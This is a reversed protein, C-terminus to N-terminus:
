KKVDKTLFREIGQIEKLIEGNSLLNLKQILQRRTNNDTVFKSRTANIVKWIEQRIEDYILVGIGHEKLLEFNTITRYLIDGIFDTVPFAIYCYNCFCSRILAQQFVGNFNNLKVEISTIYFCHKRHKYLSVVDLELPHIRVEKFVWYPYQSSFRHQTHLWRVFTPYYDIEKM